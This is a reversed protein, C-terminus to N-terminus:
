LSADSLAWCFDGGRGATARLTSLGRASRPGRGLQYATSGGFSSGALTDQIRADWKYLAETFAHWAKAREPSDHGEPVDDALQVVRVAVSCAATSPHGDADVISAGDNDFSLKAREALPVILKKAAILQETISREDALPLAQDTRRPLSTQLRGIDSDGFELRGRLEALAWGLRILDQADSLALADM